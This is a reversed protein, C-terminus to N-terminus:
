RSTVEMASGNEKALIQKKPVLSQKVMTRVLKSSALHTERIVVWSPMQLLAKALELPASWSLLPILTLNLWHGGVKSGFLFFISWVLPCQLYSSLSRTTKILQFSWHFWWYLEFSFYQLVSRFKAGWMRRQRLIFSIPWFELSTQNRSMRFIHCFWKEISTM